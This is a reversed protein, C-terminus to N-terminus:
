AGEEIDNRAEDHLPSLVTYVTYVVDLLNHELHHLILNASVHPCSSIHRTWNFKM